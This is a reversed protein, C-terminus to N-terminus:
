VIPFLSQAVLGGDVLHWGPLSLDFLTSAYERGMNATNNIGSDFLVAVLQGNPLQTITHIGETGTAADRENFNVGINQNVAGIAPTGASGPVLFSAVYALSANSFSGTFGIFDVSGDALQTVVADQNGLGSLAQASANGAAVGVAHPLGKTGPVLDSAILQAASNFGLMDLQGDPLQSVMTHGAQGPVTGFHFGVGVIRPVSSGLASGILDGNANLFLFDIQSTTQNQAVLDPFGDGNIIDSAVIKWVSGLGYDKLDSAVLTTGFYKLYDVQGTTDNQIVVDHQLVQPLNASIVPPSNADWGLIDM